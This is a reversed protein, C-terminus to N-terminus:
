NQQKSESLNPPHLVQQNFKLKSDITVGLLTVYNVVDISCGGVELFINKNSNLGFLIGQFKSANVVMQNTKLWHISKSMGEELNSAVVEFSNGCSFISNDDAFNCVELQKIIYHFENIFINFSLLGLM